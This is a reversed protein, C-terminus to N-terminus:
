DPTVLTIGFQFWSIRSGRDSVEAKRDASHSRCAPVGAWTSTMSSDERSPDGVKSREEVLHLDAIPELHLSAMGPIM